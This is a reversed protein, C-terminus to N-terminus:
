APAARGVLHPAGDKPSTLSFAVGDTTSAHASPWRAPCSSRSRSRWTSPSRTPCGTRSRPSAAPRPEVHRARDPAPLRVGQRDAPLPPDPQPRRVGRRVPPRPRRAAALDVGTRRRGDLPTAGPAARRRRRRRPAPVDLDGGVGARRRPAGHHGPRLGQGEPAPAPEGARARCTSGDRRRAIPRHQTITNASTCRASRRSRSRGPRDHDGHAAPVGAHAPLDAAAHGQRPFGCVEAYAAVHAATSRSTRAPTLTLDPLDGGSRARRRAAPQGRAAVPLAAKLM